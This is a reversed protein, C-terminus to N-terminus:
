TLRVVKTLEYLKRLSKLENRDLSNSNEKWWWFHFYIQALLLRKEFEEWVMNGDPWRAKVYAAKVNEVADNDWGEILSALDIEGATAAASEWDVVYIIGNKLLINRPYFEGHIITQSSYILSDINKDFYDALRILWPHEEHSDKTLERFREPWISYYEKDYTKVFDPIKGENLHHFNGIWTAAKIVADSDGSYLMRLTEGLYELVLLLDGNSEIRCQGFYKIKSVPANNLIDEYIKAEYEVGGRHGFNNPGLGGLYKCFLNIKEGTGTKCVVIEVPFTSTEYFNERSIIEISSSDTGFM